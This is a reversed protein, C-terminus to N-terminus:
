ANECHRKAISLVTNKSIGLNRAIWRSSRSEEVAALVDPALLDSKPRRGPQRGLKKGCVRAAALGSKVRESILDREFQTIGALM